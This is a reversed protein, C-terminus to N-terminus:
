IHPAGADRTESIEPSATGCPGPVILATLLDFLVAKPKAMHKPKPMM